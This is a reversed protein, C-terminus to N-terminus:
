NVQNINEEPTSQLVMEAIIRRVSRLSLFKICKLQEQVVLHAIFYKRFLYRICTPLTFIQILNKKWRVCLKGYYIYKDDYM